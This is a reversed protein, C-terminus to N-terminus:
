RRGLAFDALSQSTQSTHFLRWSLPLKLIRFGAETFEEALRQRGSRLEDGALSAPLDDHDAAFFIVTEAATM